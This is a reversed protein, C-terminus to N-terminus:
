NHGGIKFAGWFAGVAFIFSAAFNYTAMSFGFLSWNMKDCAMVSGGALLSERLQKVTKIGSNVDSANCGTVSLWWHQEVGIHYLAIAAGFGFIVGSAEVVRIRRYPIILAVLGLLGSAFYPIRQYLCLACPEIKLIYQSFYAVSLAALSVGFIGLPVIFAPDTLKHRNM